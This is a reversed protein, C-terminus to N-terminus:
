SWDKPLDVPPRDVGSALAAVDLAHGLLGGVARAAVAEGVRGAVDSRGPHVASASGPPALGGGFVVRDDRRDVLLVGGTLVLHLESPDGADWLLEGPEPHLVEGSSRLLDLAHQSLVPFALEDLEDLRRSSYHTLEDPVPIVSM